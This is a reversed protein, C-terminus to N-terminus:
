CDHRIMHTVKAHPPHRHYRRGAGTDDSSHDTLGPAQESGAPGGGLCPTQHVVCPILRNAAWQNHAICTCAPIVHDNCPDTVVLDDTPHRFGQHRATNRHTIRTPLSPSVHCSAAECTPAEQILYGHLRLTCSILTVSAYRSTLQLLSVAM